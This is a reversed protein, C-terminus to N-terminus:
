GLGLLNVSGGKGCLMPQGLGCLGASGAAIRDPVLRSEKSASLTVLYLLSNIVGHSRGSTVGLM